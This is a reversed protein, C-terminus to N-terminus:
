AKWLSYYGRVLPAIDKENRAAVVPEVAAILEPQTLVLIRDNINQDPIANTTFTFHIGDGAAYSEVYNAATNNPRVQAQIPIGPAILVAVVNTAAAAGTVSLQGQTDSNIRTCGTPNPPLPPPDVCQMKRFDHSLAYWIQEGSADRLDDIGLTKWPLRGIMSATNAGVCDSDGDGDADPCPLAGPQFYSGSSTQLHWDSAAAYAILAAKAQRLAGMTRQERENLVDANGRTLASAIVFTAILAALALIAILAFGRETRM